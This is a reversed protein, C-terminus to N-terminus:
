GSVGTTFTALSLHMLLFLSAWKTSSVESSPQSAHLILRSHHIGFLQPSATSCNGSMALCPTCGDRDMGTDAYAVLLISLHVKTTLYSLATTAPYNANQLSIRHHPWTLLLLDSGDGVTDWTFILTGTTDTFSYDLDVSTPYVQYYEDLLAKDSTQNLMVLRLVGSYQNSAVIISSTFDATLTISSLGYILYTSGETNTVSFETGTATV